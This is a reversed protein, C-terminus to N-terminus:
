QYGSTYIIIAGFIKEHKYRIKDTGDNDDNGDPRGKKQFKM